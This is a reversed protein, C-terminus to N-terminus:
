LQQWRGPEQRPAWTRRCPATSRVTGAPVILM